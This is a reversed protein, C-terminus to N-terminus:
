KWGITTQRPRRTGSRTIVYNEEKSVAHGYKSDDMIVHLLNYSHGHQNVQTYMIEAITNASYQKFVGYHLEVDDVILNLVPNEYFNRIINEYTDKSGGNVTTYKMKEGQPIIVEAYIMM